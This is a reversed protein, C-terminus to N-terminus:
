SGFIGTLLRLVLAKGNLLYFLLSLIVVVVLIQPWKSKKDAFPDELSREAGPPLSAVKTLSRGFPINIRARANVAWGNADLIPGLTRQRLKLWAIIMSPGSILMTVGAIALPMKWWVLQM